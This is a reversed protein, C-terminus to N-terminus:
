SNTSPADKTNKPRRFKAVVACRCVKSPPHDSYPLITGSQRLRGIYDMVDEIAEGGKGQRGSQRQRHHDEM